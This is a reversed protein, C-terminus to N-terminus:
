LCPYDSKIVRMGDSRVMSVVQGSIKLQRLPVLILSGFLLFYFSLPLSGEKPCSPFDSVRKHLSPGASEGSSKPDEELFLKPQLDDTEWPISSDTWWPFTGLFEWLTWPSDQGLVSERYLGGFILHNDPLLWHHLCHFFNGLVFCLLYFNVSYM